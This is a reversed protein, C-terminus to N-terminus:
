GDEWLPYVQVISSEDRFVSRVAAYGRKMDRLDNPHVNYADVRHVSGLGTPGVRQDIQVTYDFKRRTGFQAAITEADTAELRHAIILGAQLVAQRINLKEPIYQTSVVAPMQAQRAQLLLDVVQEAERLAAFEDFIILMPVVPQREALARVRKACQQKLDQAVIRGMLEVDESAATAPLNVYTVSPSSLVEPWDLVPKGEDGANFLPGFKGQTLATFRVRLGAIGEAIVGREDAMIDLERQYPEGAFHGIQRMRGPILAEALRNLTIPQDEGAQMARVLLPIVTMAVNKYIEAQPSYSFVGILKNAIDAADGTCPDYGISQPDDSDVLAFPVRWRSALMAATEKLDGGKCDVIVVGCGLGLVGNALRGITTTKGSGSAGPLFVHQQLEEPRLDFPRRSERDIGLRIFDRRTPPAKQDSGDPLQRRQGRVADIRQIEHRREFRMLGLVGTQMLRYAGDAMLFLLPGILLEVGVSGLVRPTMAISSLGSHALPGATVSWVRWPWLPIVAFRLLYAVTALLVAAAWMVTRGVKSFRAIVFAIAAGIGTAPNAVAVIGCLLLTLIGLQDTIHETQPNYRLARRTLPEM